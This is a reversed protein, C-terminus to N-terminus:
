SSLRMGKGLAVLFIASKGAAHPSFFNTVDDDFFTLGTAGLRLAYAALYLRGGLIGAELQTVRYGRNGFSGFISHLDALLFVDAAADGPLDQMLGLHRAESRFNGPRLFELEATDTHFYYTGPVLGDVANVILYLDNLLPLARWIPRTSTELMTRLQELTIPERAFQRSSGRRLIVQEITDTTPLNSGAVVEPRASIHDGTMAQSRWAAVEEPTQLSSAAHIRTLEPYEVESNSLPVTPFSLEPLEMAAGPTEGAVYGLSVMSFAVEHRTDLGLLQNVESDMWGLVLKAPVQLAATIAFMNALITGNDWGFHRYTRARYKWANRWYTGACVITVPSHAVNSEGAAAHVLAGRHDGARLLRLAFDGPAFHYVGAKLDPLNGCVLYIEFEYLAGTCSAARFYMEGGAYTKKKTIGASFYLIRALDQLSPIKERGGELPGASIASLASIGTQAWDRPLPMPDLTPYIKQTLPQNQWDLYHPNARLSRESHKTANHYAWAQATDHNPATKDIM